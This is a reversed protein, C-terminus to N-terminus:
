IPDLRRFSKPMLRLDALAAMIATLLNVEGEYYLLYYRTKMTVASGLLISFFVIFSGISLTSSGTVAQGITCGMGLVGGIGMLIAGLLHNFFDKASPFWELHFSKSIISYLFSGLIVGAVSCVGFTLLLEKFGSQFYVLTEGMPNIFTYSQDGVGVPPQDMWEATEQWAKGIPGSTVYWGGVIAGGIVLGGLVLSLQKRFEVSYFVWIGILIALAVGIVGSEEPSTGPGLFLEGLSQTSYGFDSLKISLASIWSHFVYEYFVTKTMLYAFTGCVLFVVVSKINGGGIRILTKNGCGSALTMGVGFMLGGLIFRLLPLSEMRYPPRSTEISIFQFTELLSVGLIAVAISLLWARLRNKEGVNVWDSVAGMACFQTRNGVFGIIVAIIFGFLLVQQSIEEEMM